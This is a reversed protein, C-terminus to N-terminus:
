KQDESARRERANLLAMKGDADKARASDHKGAKAELAAIKQKARQLEVRLEAAVHAQTRPSGINSSPPIAEEAPARSALSLASITAEATALAHELSAIRGAMEDREHHLSLLENKLELDVSHVTEAQPQPAHKWKELEQAHMKAQEALQRSCEDSLEQKVRALEGTLATIKAEWESQDRERQRKREALCLNATALEESVAQAQTVAHETKERAMELAKSHQDQLLLRNQRESALAHELSTVQQNWTSEEQQRRRQWEDDDVTISRSLKEELLQVQNEHHHASKRLRELEDMAAALRAESQELIKEKRQLQQTATTASTSNEALQQELERLRIQQTQVTENLHSKARRMDEIETQLAAVEAQSKQLMLQANAYEEKIRRVQAALESLKRETNASAEMSSSDFERRKRQLADELELKERRLQAKEESSTTDLSRLKNETAAVLAELQALKKVM